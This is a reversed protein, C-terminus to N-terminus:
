PTFRLGQDHRARFLFQLIRRALEATAEQREAAQQFLRLAALAERHVGKSRFIGALEEALVKAEETRSEDLLLAAEELLALAVDYDMERSAFERRVQALLSLAESRQGLGAAVRGQLWLGRLILIEDGLEAACAQAEDALEAAETFRGTHCLAFGLNYRLMNRLRRDGQSEVLPLAQLLSEISREYEGMVDLTSGKNVLVRAPSRGIALAEDLLALAEKFRRQGRRLSAELDPLRGPDLVAAPDSGSHWLSKATTFTAEAGKLDGAVRLANAVHATAYGRVRDRWGGSGPVHEAIELALRALSASHRVDRSAETVSEACVRECLAWSQFDSAVRVVEARMGEPANKLREWLEEARERDAPSPTGSRPLLLIRRYVTEFLSRLDLTFGDLAEKGSRGRIERSRRFAEYLRLIEEAQALTIGAGVALQELDEPAPEVRGREFHGILSPHVGLEQAALEQSKGSLARLLRALM